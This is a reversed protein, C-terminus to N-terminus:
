NRTRFTRFYYLYPSAESAGRREAVWKDYKRKFTSTKDVEVVDKDLLNWNDIVRHVMFHRRIEKSPRPKYLRMNHRLSPDGRSGAMTFFKNPNIDEKETLIKYTEIM